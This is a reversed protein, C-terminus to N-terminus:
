ATGIRWSVLEGRGMRGDRGCISEVELPMEKASATAAPGSAPAAITGVAPVQCIIAAIPARGMIRARREWDEKGGAGPKWRGCGASRQQGV